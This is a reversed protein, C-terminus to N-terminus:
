SVEKGDDNDPRKSLLAFALIILVMAPIIFQAKFLVLCIVSCGAGIASSVRNKKDMWNDIFIVVFLATLAFDVGKTNFPIVNGVVAGLMCSIIWYWRNLFATFFMFLGKDCGEPADHSSLISFTEDCLAFVVYYKYRGADKFKDLMSLGYFVHRANVTLTLVFAGLPNFAATMLNVAVFQMSGAFVLWSTLLTWGAAIGLSSMLIGYATGMFIFGALVPLTNPFAAKLATAAAARGSVSGMKQVSNDM